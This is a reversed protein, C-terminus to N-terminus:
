KKTVINALDKELTVKPEEIIRGTEKNNKYFIITPVKQINLSDIENNLGKKSRDVAYIKIKDKPYNLYDLIKLFRPVERRSDSCWTGLVLTIDYNRLEDADSKLSTSDVEYMQYESNFWWSFVSDQFAQRNIEGILMPASTKTDKIKKNQAATTVSFLILFTFIVTLKM